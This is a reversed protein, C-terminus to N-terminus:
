KLEGVIDKLDKFVDSTPNNYAEKFSKFHGHYYKTTMEIFIRSNCYMLIEVSKEPLKAKRLWYSAFVCMADNWFPSQGINLDRWQIGLPFDEYLREIYMMKDRVRAMDVDQIIPIDPELRDSDEKNLEWINKIEEWHQEYVHLSNVMEFFSGIKVGIREGIFQTIYGFQFFNYPLGWIFDQSRVTQTIDLKDDRVLFLSSVNCARDKVDREVSDFLPHRYVIGAHRTNLDKAFHLIVDELQDIKFAERMRKGYAANFKPLGDIENAYEKLQKNYKTIWYNDDGNMIWVIEALAMPFNLVRGKVNLFYNGFDGVMFSLPHIERTMGNRSNVEVGHGVIKALQIYATNIDNFLIM